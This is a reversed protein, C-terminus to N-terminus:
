EYMKEGKKTNRDLTDSEKNNQPYISWEPGPLSYPINLKLLRNSLATRGLKEVRTPQAESIGAYKEARLVLERFQLIEEENLSTNAHEQCFTLLDQQPNEEMSDASINLWSRVEDDYTTEGDLIRNYFAIRKKLMYKSLWNSEIGRSTFFFHKRVAPNEDLWLEQIIRRLEQEDVANEVREHYTMIHALSNRRRNLKELSPRCIFLNVTEEPHVRKRGLMQVFATRNDALLVVNRVKEDKINIGCDLVATAILCQVEYKCELLLKEYAETGKSDADLFLANEDGLAKQLEKGIQKSDVFILWKERRNALIPGKVEELRDIWNLKLYSYDPRMEYRFFTRPLVNRLIRHYDVFNAQEELQLPYLVDADTATLYIRIARQFHSTVLKLYYSCRENFFTDACFVHAEDAVVYKIRSMWKKQNSDENKLFAPLRHYTLIKVSGFDEKEILGKPTYKDAETSDIARLFDIKQQYSLAIRNSLVLVNQGTSIADPILIHELWYTKGRGPPANVLVPNRCDWYQLEDKLAETVTDGKPYFTRYMSPVYDDAPKVVQVTLKRRTQSFDNALM